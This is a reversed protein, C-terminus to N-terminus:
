IVITDYRGALSGGEIDALSLESDHVGFFRLVQPLTLDFSRLYGVRVDQSVKVNILNLSLQGNAVETGYEDALKVPLIVTGELAPRRVTFLFTTILSALPAAEFQQIEPEVRVAQSEAVSLRGRLPTRLHSEIKIQLPYSDSQGADIINVPINNP